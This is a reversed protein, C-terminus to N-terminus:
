FLLSLLFIASAILIIVPGAPLGGILAILTGFLASVAGFFTSLLAYQNLSSGIGRASAGPISMLAAPLLVGVLKVEIAVVFAICLMYILNTRQINVGESFALDPSLGGLIVKKYIKSLIFIVSIAIVVSLVTDSLSISTIDGILAKKAQEIPLLLFGLAVTSPFVVATIAELHLESKLSLLWILASGLLITALGGWFVDVGYLLGLAVGPLALHGMPGGVLAMRKTVMLSGLYGAVSGVFLSTLLPLTM